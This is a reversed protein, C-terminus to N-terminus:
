PMEGKRAVEESGASNSDLREETILLTHRKRAEPPVNLLM